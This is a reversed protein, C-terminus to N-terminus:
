ASEAAEGHYAGLWHVAKTAVDLDSIQGNREEGNAGAWLAPAEEDEDAHYEPYTLSRRIRKSPRLSKIRDAEHHQHHDSQSTKAGLAHPLLNAVRKHREPLGLSTQSSPPTAPTDFPHGHTLIAPRLAPRNLFESLNVPDDLSPAKFATVNVHTQTPSPSIPDPAILEQGGIPSSSKERANSVSGALHGQTNSVEVRKSPITTALIDTAAHVHAEESESDASGPDGNLFRQPLERNSLLSAAAILLKVADETLGIKAFGEAVSEKVVACVKATLEDPGDISKVAGSERIRTTAISAVKIASESAIEHLNIGQGGDNCSGREKQREGETVAGKLGADHGSKVHKRLANYGQYTKDCGTIPCHYKGGSLVVYSVGDITLTETHTDYQHRKWAKIEYFTLDCTGCVWQGADNAPMFELGYSLLPTFLSYVPALSQRTFLGLHEELRKLNCGYIGPGCNCIAGGM